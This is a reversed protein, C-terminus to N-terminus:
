INMQAGIEVVRGAPIRFYDSAGAANRSLAIFLKGQWAPVRSRAAIRIRRRSLIFSTAMIDFKWGQRRCLLLAQPVDPEEAYGYCLEVRRFRDNIDEIRVRQSDPLRPVEATTITLIVNQEHLSKFHKLSHLLASPALDPTSTLFVATGPVTAISDSRALQALLVDLPLELERDKATVVASGRMWSAMVILVLAALGLPVYGGDHIKMLNAGLFTLDLALFPLMMAVSLWLPLRWHRHAVVMALTATIVMTGTVAIGYASALRSSSGFIVVLALVAVMLWRNVGPMYIQGQHEDSTHRIKMRPFMRLQVAQRTLSYAGTIVAQSAIITALTALIVVPLLAWSPFMLYFPNAMASPNSLVLAGQGFYTLLLAPFAVFLWAVQIPRRGFHGMDAYLAEAGTVALFVAGLVMLGLRGNQLMFHLAYLPNLAALVEPDRLMWHTGAAAMVLFWLLTIPGFFRAVAQTGRQQVLFLGVIIAIAIPQIFPEVQHTVLKLGEVASLVSIAPTIAADGYFLAAGLMGLVLIARNPRGLARQALALLSLTGGEGENDARMLILVYKVTVILVLAWVILSLVGLVDARLVQGHSAGAAHMAERFAYLPSTGIDGYVVGIAALSLQALGARRPPITHLETELSAM